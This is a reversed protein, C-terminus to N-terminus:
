PTPTVTPTATSEPAGSTATAAPTNTPLPTSSPLPTASPLPTSSPAPLTATPASTSTAPPQTQTAPPTNTPPLTTPQPTSSAAPPPTDSPSATTTAVPPTASATETAQATATAVETAETSVPTPTRTPRPTFTAPPSTPTLPVPTATPINPTAIIVPTAGGALPTPTPILGPDALELFLEYLIPGGVVPEGFGQVWGHQGSALELTEGERGIIQCPGTLCYLDLRQAPRDYTLGMLGTETEARAGTEAFVVYRQNAEPDAVVLLIGENLQFITAPDTSPEGALQRLEIETEEGLFFTGADSGLRLWGGEGTRVLTGAGAGITDGIQLRVPRAVGPEQNSSQGRLGSVYVFNAELDAPITPTPPFSEPVFARYVASAGIGLFLLVALASIAIFALNSQLGRLRSPRPSQIEPM